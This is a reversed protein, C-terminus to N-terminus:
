SSTQLRQKLIAYYESNEDMTLFAIVGSLDNQMGPAMIPKDQEDYYFRGKQKIINKSVAQYIDVKVSLHPDEIIQLFQSAGDIKDNDIIDSLENFLWDADNAMDPLNSKGRKQILIQRMKSPNNEISGLMAYAKARKDKLRRKNNNAVEHDEIYYMYTNLNNVSERNPAVIDKQAKLVLFKLYQEPNSLDLPEDNKGLQVFYEDFFCSGLSSTNLWGKPFNLMEELAMREEQSSFPNIWSGRETRPLQYAKKTRPGMRGFLKHNEDQVMATPKAYFKITVKKNPLSFGSREAIISRGASELVKSKNETKQTM